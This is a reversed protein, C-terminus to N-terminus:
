KHDGKAHEQIIIRMAESASAIKERGNSIRRAIQHIYNNHKDPLSFTRPKTKIALLKAADVANFFSDTIEVEDLDDMKLEKM